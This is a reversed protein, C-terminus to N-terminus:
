GRLKGLASKFRSHMPEPVLAVLYEGGAAAYPALAADRMLAGGDPPWLAVLPVTLACILILGLILGVGAGALRDAWRLHVAGLARGILWAAVAAALAVGLFIIAFAALRM